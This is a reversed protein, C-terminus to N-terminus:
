TIVCTSDYLSMMNGILLLSYTILILFPMASYRVEVIARIPKGFFWIAIMMLSSLWGLKVLLMSSNVFATIGLWLMSILLPSVLIISRAASSWLKNSTNSSCQWSAVVGFVCFFWGIFRLVILYSTVYKLGSYFLLFELVIITFYPLAWVLWWAQWLKKDGTLFAHLNQILFSM